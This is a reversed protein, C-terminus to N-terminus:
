RAKLFADADGAVRPSEARPDDEEDDECPPPLSSRRQEVMAGLVALPGVEDLRRTSGRDEFVAAIPPLLTADATPPMAVVGYAAVRM